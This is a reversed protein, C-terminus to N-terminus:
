RGASAARVRLAEEILHQVASQAEARGSRQKLQKQLALLHKRAEAPKNQALLCEAIGYAAHDALPFDPGEAVALRFSAIAKDHEKKNQSFRGNWYHCYRALRSKPWRKVVDFTDGCFANTDYNSWPTHHIRDVPGWEADGKAPRRITFAVPASALPRGKDEVVARVTFSGGEAPFQFWERLDYTRVRVTGTAARAELPLPKGKALAKVAPKIEFRFSLNDGKVPGPPLGRAAQGEWQATVLIPELSVLEKQAVRLQLADKARAPREASASLGSALLALGAALGMLRRCMM